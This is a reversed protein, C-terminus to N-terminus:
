LADELDYREQCTACCFAGSTVRILRRGCRCVYGVLRAPQGVVLGFDPVDHAVVAGAGVMAFRGMTVGPLVIAGAGVSAGYRVVIRGVDWDEARKLAGAPTIARPAKDNTLCAHPGIFVGDEITSGRYVLAYNEIKVNSGIEVEADIYAGKGVTCHSGLRAGERVQAQHWIHTGAGLEARPSVEATAHINIDSTM